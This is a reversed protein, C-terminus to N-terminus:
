PCYSAIEVYLPIDAAGVLETIRLDVGRGTRSKDIDRLNLRKRCNNDLSHLKLRLTGFKDRSCTIILYVSNGNERRFRERERLSEVTHQLSDKSERRSPLFDIPLELSELKCHGQLDIRDNWITIMRFNTGEKVSFPSGLNLVPRCPLFFPYSDFGSDRSDAYRRIYSSKLLIRAILDTNDATILYTFDIGELGISGQLQIIEIEISPLEGSFYPIWEERVTGFDPIRRILRSGGEKAIGSSRIGIKDSGM